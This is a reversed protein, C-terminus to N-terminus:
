DELWQLGAPPAFKTDDKVPQHGSFEFRTTDGELGRYSLRLLQHTRRDISMSAELVPSGAALPALTLKVLNGNGGSRHAAYRRQLEEVSLTLLDLGPEDTSKLHYRRGSQEGENWTYATGSCVLFSRPYPSRYDWRLCNPVSLHIQGSEEEGASFGAPLYTQVFDATLPRSALTSRLAQLESWPDAESAELQFVGLWSGLMCTALLATRYRIRSM